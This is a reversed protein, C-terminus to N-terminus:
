QSAIPTSTFTFAGGQGFFPCSQIQQPLQGLAQLQLVGHGVKSAANGTGRLTIDGVRTGGQLLLSRVQFRVFGPGLDWSGYGSSLSYGAPLCAAIPVPSGVIIGDSSATALVDLPGGSTTIALHYSGAIRGAQGFIPLRSGLFAGITLVATLVVAGSIRRKIM